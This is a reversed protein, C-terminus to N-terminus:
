PGVAVACYYQGAAPDYAWGVAFDKTGPDLLYSGGGNGIIKKVVQRGNWRPVPEWYYSSPCASSDGNDIACRQAAKTVVGKVPAVGQRARYANIAGILDGGDTNLTCASDTPCSASPHKTRSHSSSASSHSPRRPASSSRSSGSGSASSPSPAASNTLSDLPRPGGGGSNDSKGPNLFTVAVLVIIAALVAMGFLAVAAKRRQRSEGDPDGWEDSM